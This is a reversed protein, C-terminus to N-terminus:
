SKCSLPFRAEVQVCTGAYSLPTHFAIVIGYDSTVGVLSAMVDGDDGGPLTAYCSLGFGSCGHGWENEARVLAFPAEPGSFLLDLLLQTATTYIADPLVVSVTALDPM